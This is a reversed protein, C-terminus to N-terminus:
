GKKTKFLKDLSVILPQVGFAKQNARLTNILDDIHENGNNKHNKWLELMMMVQLHYLAKAM